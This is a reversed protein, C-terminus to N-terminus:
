ARAVHVVNEDRLQQHQQPLLQEAVAGWFTSRFNVSERGISEDSSLFYHPRRRNVM